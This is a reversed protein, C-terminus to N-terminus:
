DKILFLEAFLQDSIENLSEKVDNPELNGLMYLIGYKLQTKM